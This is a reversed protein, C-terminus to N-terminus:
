DGLAVCRQALVASAAAVTRQLAAADARAQAQPVLVGVVLGAAVLPGALVGALVFAIRARLSVLGGSSPLTVDAGRDLARGASTPTARHRSLDGPPHRTSPRIRTSCSRRPQRCITAM